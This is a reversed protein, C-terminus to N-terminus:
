VASLGDQSGPFLQVIKWKKCESCRNQWLSEWRYNLDAIQICCQRIVSIKTAASYWFLWGSNGAYKYRAAGMESTISLGRPNTSISSPRRRSSLSPGWSPPQLSIAATMLLMMRLGTTKMVARPISPFIMKWWWRGAGM